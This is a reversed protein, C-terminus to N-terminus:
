MMIMSIIIGIILVISSCIIYTFGITFTKITLVFYSQQYVRRFSLIIYILVWLMAPIITNDSDIMGALDLSWVITLLLFFFSHIHLSHILHKIYYGKKYFFGKLLLAYLPLIFFMIVPVKELLYRNISGQTSKQSKLLISSSIRELIPKEAINMTDYIQQVSFKDAHVMADMLAYEYSSISWDGDRAYKLSDPITLLSDLKEISDIQNSNNFIVINSKGDDENNGQNMIINFFFFHFLSIVLYWRIPHAYKLRRGEIFENTIHGPKFFFPFVTRVFRSDFSFYNNLFDGILIRISQYNNTNEQGCVPCYHFSKKISESCNLCKDTTRNRKKM